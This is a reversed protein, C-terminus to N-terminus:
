STTIRVAVGNLIAHKSNNHATAHQRAHRLDTPEAHWNCADCVALHRASGRLALPRAILRGGADKLTRGMDSMEM